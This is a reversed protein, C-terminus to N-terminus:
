VLGSQNESNLYVSSENPTVVSNLVVCYDLDFSSVAASQVRGFLERSRKASTLGSARHSVSPSM